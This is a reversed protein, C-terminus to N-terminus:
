IRRHCARLHPNSSPSDCRRGSGGGSCICIGGGGGGGGVVVVVVVVVFNFFFIAESRLARFSTGHDVWSIRGPHHAEGANSCLM